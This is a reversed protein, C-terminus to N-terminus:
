TKSLLGRPQCSRFIFSFVNEDDHFMYDVYTLPMNQIIKYTFFNGTTKSKIRQLSDNNSEWVFEKGKKKKSLIIFHKIFEGLWIVNWRSDDIM